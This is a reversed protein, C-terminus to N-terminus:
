PMIDNVLSKFSIKIKQVITTKAQPTLLSYEDSTVVTGTADMSKVSFYYRTGPKFTTLVAAHKKQKETNITVEERKDSKEEHYLLVTTSPLNTVWSIITQIKNDAFIHNENEVASIKLSANELALQASGDDYNIPRLQPAIKINDENKKKELANVREREELQALTVCEKSAEDGVAYITIPDKGDGWASVVSMVSDDGADVATIRVYSTEAEILGTVPIIHTVAFSDADTKSILKTYQADQFVEVFAKTALPKNGNASDFTQFIVTAQNRSINAFLIDGKGNPIYIEPKVAQPSIVPALVVGVFVLLISGLIFSVVKRIKKQQRKLQTYSTFKKDKAKFIKIQNKAASDFIFDYFEIWSDPLKSVIKDLIKKM